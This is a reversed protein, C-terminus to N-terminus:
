HSSGPGLDVLDDVHAAALADVNVHAAALAADRMSKLEDTTLSEGLEEEHDAAQVHKDSLKTRALGPGKWDIVLGAKGTACFYDVVVDAVGPKLKVSGSQEEMDDKLGDNKVVIKGNIYVMCGDACRSYFTYDGSAPVNIHGRFRAVFNNQYNKNLGIWFGATAPYNISDVIEKKTAPISSIKLIADGLTKMGRVSSWFSASFGKMKEKKDPVGIALDAPPNDGPARRRAVWRRRRHYSGKDSKVADNEMETKLATYPSMYNAKEPAATEDPPLVDADKKEEEKTAKKDAEESKKEEAKEEKPDKTEDSEKEGPVSAKAKELKETAKTKLELAKADAKIASKKVGEAVEAESSSARAKMRWVRAKRDKEMLNKFLLNDGQKRALEDSGRKQLKEAKNQMGEYEKKEAKEQTLREQFMKPTHATSIKKMSKEVLAKMQAVALDSAEKTKLHRETALRTRTALKAKVEANMALVAEQVNENGKDCLAQAQKVKVGAELANNKADKGSTDAKTTAKAFKQTLETLRTEANALHTKAEDSRVKTTADKVSKETRTRWKEATEKADQSKDKKGYLEDARAKYKKHVKQEHERSKVAIDLKTEALKLMNTTKEEKAQEAKKRANEKQVGKGDADVVARKRKMVIKDETLQNGYEREEEGTKAEKFLTEDKSLVSQAEAYARLADRQAIASRAQDFKVYKNRNETFKDKYDKSLTEMQKFGATSVRAVAKLKRAREITKQAWLKTGHERTLAAERLTAADRKEKAEQVERDQIIQDASAYDVQAQTAANQTATVKEGAKILDSKAKVMETNATEEKVKRESRGADYATTLMTLTTQAATKQAATAGTRIQV